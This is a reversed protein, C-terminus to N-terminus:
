LYMLIDLVVWKSPTLVCAWHQKNVTTIYYITHPIVIIASWNDGLQWPLPQIKHVHVIHYTSSLTHIHMHARTHTYTSHAHTHTHICTHIPTHVHTETGTHTHVHWVQAASRHVAPHMLLLPSPSVETALEFHTATFAAEKSLEGLVWGLDRQTSSHAPCQWVTWGTLEKTHTQWATFM